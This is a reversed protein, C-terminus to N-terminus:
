RATLEKGARAPRFMGTVIVVRGALAKGAELCAEPDLSTSVAPLASSQAALAAAYQSAATPASDSASAPSAGPAMASAPAAIARRPPPRLSTATAGVGGDQKPGEGSETGFLDRERTFFLARLLYSLVSM